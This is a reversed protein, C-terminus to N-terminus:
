FSTTKLSSAILRSTALRTAFTASGSSNRMRQVMLHLLDVLAGQSSNERRKFQKSGGFNKHSPTKKMNSVQDTVLALSHTENKKLSVEHQVVISM